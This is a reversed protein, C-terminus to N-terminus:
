KEHNCSVLIARVFVRGNEPRDKEPDAERITTVCQHGLGEYLDTLSKGEIAVSGFSFRLDISGTSDHQVALLYAYSLSWRSGTKTQLELM